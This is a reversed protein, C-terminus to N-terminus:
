PLTVRETSTRVPGKTDGNDTRKGPEEQTQGTGGADHVEYTCEGGAPQEEQMIMRRCAKNRAIDEAYISLFNTSRSLEERRSIYTGFM